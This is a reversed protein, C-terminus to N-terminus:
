HHIMIDHLLNIHDCTIVPKGNIHIPFDLIVRLPIVGTALKYKHLKNFCLPLWCEM